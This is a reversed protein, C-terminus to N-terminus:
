ASRAYTGNEQVLLGALELDLLQNLLVPIPLNVREAILDLPTANYDICGLLTQENVDLELEPRKSNDVTIPSHKIYQAFEETIDLVTETLKAGQKILAHAGKAKPDHISGPMAFVERNFELAQRATILSGSRLAAEVVLTGLSMGAIIRNRRPFHGASPSVGPRFESIVAGSETIQEYLRGHNRPYCGDIGTGVVAITEGSSLAGTHAAADVGLAGGSSIVLGASALAAAFDSATSIASSSARRSGVIAVQPKALVAPNGKVYLLEPPNPIERLLAPYSADMYTVIHVDKLMKKQLLVQQWAKHSTPNSSFARWAKCATASLQLSLLEETCAKYAVEPDSFHRILALREKSKLAPLHHWVCYHFAKSDM